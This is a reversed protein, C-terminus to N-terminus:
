SPQWDTYPHAPPVSIPGEFIVGHVDIPGTASLDGSVGMVATFGAYAGKGTLVHVRPSITDDELWATLTRDFRANDNM